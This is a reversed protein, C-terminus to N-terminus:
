GSFAQDAAGALGGLSAFPADVTLDGIRFAPDAAPGLAFERPPGPPDSPETPVAVFLTPDYGEPYTTVVASALDNAHVAARDALAQAYRAAVARAMFQPLAIAFALRCEEPTAADGNATVTRGITVATADDINVKITWEYATM